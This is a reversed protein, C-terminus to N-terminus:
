QNKQQNKVALKVVEYAGDYIHIQNNIKIQNAMMQLLSRDNILLNLMNITEEITTCEYTGDGLESARIAGYAEHGGVRKIMLKSIPYFALESPKTILLDSARMLLNTSYVASYIDKHYFCHIGTISQQYANSAFQKTQEFDDFHEVTLQKLQPIEKILKDYVKKHDGVNIFLAVKETQVYPILTKIIEKFLEFQAGAGGVTLLFRLTEQNQARKIRLDNDQDINIVLEHDIYHGTYVLDHDHMPKLPHKAMGRLTKYGLYASPTQVTHISGEALHLAMQWNDPIANVVNTFNAHIAAQAPWVHTAIFPIDKPLEQYIPTMLEATKQDIANYTLKRFGESNLPEWYYKNFLHSKQSLRSGFSYLNNLHNIIKGGTTTKFSNLDFWIPTYGLAKAASCMAMSIRYHGFGMRINGIIIPNKIQSLDLPKDGLVLLKTNLQSLVENENLQLHYTNNSDDSFKKIFKQKTKNAKNITKPDIQNGFISKTRM